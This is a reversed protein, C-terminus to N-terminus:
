REMSGERPFSPRQIEKWENHEEIYQMLEEAMKWYETHYPDVGRDVGQTRESVHQVHFAYGRLIEYFSAVEHPTTLRISFDKMTM